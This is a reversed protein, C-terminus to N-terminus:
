KKSFSFQHTESESDVNIIYKGSKFSDMVISNSCFPSTNLSVILNMKEDYISVKFFTNGGNKINIIKDVNLPYILLKSFYQYNNKVVNNETKTIPDIHTTNKSFANNCIFISVLYLTFVIKKM